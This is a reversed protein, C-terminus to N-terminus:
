AAGSNKSTPLDALCADILENLAARSEDSLTNSQNIESASRPREAPLREALAKRFVPIESLPVEDLKGESVALLLAVQISLPLPAYETQGLIARLRQGHAIRRASQAWRALM